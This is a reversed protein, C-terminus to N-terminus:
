EDFGGSIIYEYTYGAKFLMGWGTYNINLSNEGYITATEDVPYLFGYSVTTATKYYVIEGCVGNIHSTTVLAKSVKNESLDKCCIVFSCPKFPLDKFELKVMDSKLTFTGKVAKCGDVIGESYAADYVANLDEKARIIQEAITM